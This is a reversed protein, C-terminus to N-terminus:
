FIASFHQFTGYGGLFGFIKNFEGIGVISPENGGLFTKTKKITPIVLEDLKDMFIGYLEAEDIEAYTRGDEYKNQQLFSKL